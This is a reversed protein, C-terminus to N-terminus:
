FITIFNFKEKQLILKSDEVCEERRIRKMCNFAKKENKLLFLHVKCMHIFTM